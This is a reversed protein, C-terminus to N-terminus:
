TDACHRRFARKLLDLEARLLYIEARLDQDVLDGGILTFRALVECSEYETIVFSHVGAGVASPPIPIHLHLDDTDQTRIVKAADVPEGHLTVDFVPLHDSGPAVGSVLGLWLGNKFELEQVKLTM